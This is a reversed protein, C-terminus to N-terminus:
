ALAQPQTPRLSPVLKGCHRSESGSIALTPSTLPCPSDGSATAVCHPQNLRYCSWFNWDLGVHFIAYLLKRTRRYYNSFRFMWFSRSQVARNLGMVM